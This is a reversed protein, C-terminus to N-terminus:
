VKKNALAAATENLQDIRDRLRQNEELLEAVTRADRLQSRLKKNDRELKQARNVALTKAAMAEAIDARLKRLDALHASAEKAQTEANAILRLINSILMIM